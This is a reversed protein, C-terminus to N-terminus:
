CWVALWLMVVGGVMLLDVGLMSTVSLGGFGVCVYFGVAAEGLDGLCIVLGCGFAFWCVDSFGALLSWFCVFGVVLYLGLLVLCGLCM